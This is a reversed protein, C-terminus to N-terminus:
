FLYQQNVLLLMLIVFIMIKVFCSIQKSKLDAYIDGEDVVHQKHDAGNRVKRKGGIRKWESKRGSM